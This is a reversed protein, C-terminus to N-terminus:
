MQRFAIGATSGMHLITRSPDELAGMREGEAKFGDQYPANSAGTM